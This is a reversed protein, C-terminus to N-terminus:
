CWSLWGFWSGASEQNNDIPKLKIPMSQHNDALEAEERTVQSRLASKLVAQFAEKVRFADMASM